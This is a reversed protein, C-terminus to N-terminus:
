EQDKQASEEISGYRMQTKLLVEEHEKWWVDGIGLRGSALMEQAQEYIAKDQRDQVLRVELTGHIAEAQGIPEIYHTRYEYAEATRGQRAIALMLNYHVVNDVARNERKVQGEELNPEPRRRTKLLLSRLVRESAELSGQRQLLVALANAADHDALAELSVDMEGLCELLQNQLDFAATRLQADTSWSLDLIFAVTIEVTYSFTELLQGEPELGGDVAGQLMRQLIDLGNAYMKQHMLERLLNNCAKWVDVDDISFSQRFEDFASTYIPLIEEYLSTDGLGVPRMQKLIHARLTKAFLLNKKSVNQVDHQELMDKNMDLAEQLRGQGKLSNAISHRIGFATDPERVAPYDSALLARLIQESEKRWELGHAASNVQCLALYRIRDAVADEVLRSAKAEETMTLLARAAGYAEEYDANANLLTALTEYMWINVLDMRDYVKQSIAVARKALVVAYSTMGLHCFHKALLRHLEATARSRLASERVFEAQVVAHALLYNALGRSKREESSTDNRAASLDPFISAMLDVVPELYRVLAPSELRQSIREHVIPHIFCEDTGGTKSQEVLSLHLLKSLVSQFDLESLEEYKPLRKLLLTPIERWHWFGMHGLLVASRPHKQELYEFSMEWTVLVSQRSSRPDLNQTDLAPKELLAMRDKKNTYAAIYDEIAIQREAINAAAQAIALPLFGLVELLQLIPGSIGKTSLLHSPVSRSLLTRAEGESMMEVKQGDQAAAVSGLFRPDRTTILMRGDKPLYPMIGADTSGNGLFVDISDANDLVLLWRGTLKQLESSVIKVSDLHSRHSDADLASDRGILSLISVFDNFFNAAEDARIWFVQIRDKISHAFRLAIQTKSYGLLCKGARVVYTSVRGWWNGLPRLM